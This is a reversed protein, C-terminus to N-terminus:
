LLAYSHKLLFLIVFVNYKKGQLSIDTSCFVIQVSFSLGSSCLDHCFCDLQFFSLSTSFWFEIFCLCQLVSRFVDKDYLFVYQALQLRLWSSVFLKIINVTFSKYISCWQIISLTCHVRNHVQTINM